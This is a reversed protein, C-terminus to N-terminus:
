QRVLLSAAVGVAIGIFGGVGVEIRTRTPSPNNPWSDLKGAVTDVTYQSGFVAMLILSAGGLVILAAPIAM